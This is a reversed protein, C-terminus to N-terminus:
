NYLIIFRHMYLLYFCQLKVCLLVSDSHRHALTSAWQCQPPTVAKAPGLTGTMHESGLSCHLHVNCPHARRFCRLNMAWRIKKFNIKTQVTQLRKSKHSKEHDECETRHCGGGGLKLLQARTPPPPGLYSRLRVWRPSYRYMWQSSLPLHASPSEKPKTTQKSPCFTILTGIKFVIFKIENHLHWLNLQVCAQWAWSCISASILFQFLM